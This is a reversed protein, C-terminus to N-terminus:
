YTVGDIQITQIGKAKIAAFVSTAVTPATVPSTTIKIENMWATSETFADLQAQDTLMKDLDAGYLTIDEMGIRYGTHTGQWRFVSPTKMGRIQMFHLTSPLQTLDGYLNTKNQGAGATIRLNPLKTNKLAAVDGEISSLDGSVNISTLETNNALASINGTTNTTNMGLQRLKTNSALKTIDFAEQNVSSLYLVVFGSADMENVNTVVGAIRLDELAYFKIQSADFGQGFRVNKLDEKNSVQIVFPENPTNSVWRQILNGSATYEKNTGSASTVLGVEGSQSMITITGSKEAKYEIYVERQANTPNSPLTGALKLYGLINLSPNNVADKLKTVICNTAM